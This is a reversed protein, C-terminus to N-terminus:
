EITVYLTANALVQEAGSFVQVNGEKYRLAEDTPIDFEDVGIPVAMRALSTLSLSFLGRKVTRQSRARGWESM